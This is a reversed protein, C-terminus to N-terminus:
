VSQSIPKRTIAEHVVLRVMEHNNSRSNAETECVNKHLIGYIDVCMYTNHIRTCVHVHVCVHM